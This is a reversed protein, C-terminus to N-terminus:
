FAHGPTGTSLAPWARFKRGADGPGQRGHRRRRACHANAPGGAGRAGRAPSSYTQQLSAVFGAVDLPRIATLALERDDCWGFLRAAHTRMRVHAAFFEVYRWAGSAGKAAILASILPADAPTATLRAPARDPVGAARHCAEGGRDSINPHVSYHFQNARRYASYPSDLCPANAPRAHGHWKALLTIGPGHCAAPPM